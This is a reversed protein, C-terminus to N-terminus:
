ATNIVNIKRFLAVPCGHSVANVQGPQGKADYFSAGLYYTQKGGILAMANWFEPTRGHYAVDRLMRVKKGNRIEWFVQGGFQMNYRQQDISYSGRGEVYIGRDCAGIVDDESLDEEGPMLSVNPMRQFPMNMWDMGYSCGHSREVGTLESIWAAQERTTQYDVFIGNKIIPWEEAKVGEDDWGVTACGGEQTRDGVFHMFDRGMRLQNLVKDPPSMFSTGAYNAEYGYARDLETPHGISEHITLWLHSPHLVLDWVGPEVPKAAIKMAAEEGWRPANGPLDLGTVYEWGRAAPEAVSSRTQFDRGDSSIATINMSPNMRVFKQDILSGESTATLRREKVSHIRSSVFRVGRTQLAAANAEFLLAAKEEIPIREPDVEHPTEWSVDAYIEVPALTVSSPAVRNNAAAISVAERAAAAIADKNVDPTAAFGWTGGVLARIGTGYSESRSAETLKEERAGVGQSWHRSIRADAYDAGASMAADIALLVLDSESADATSSARSSPTTACGSALSTSAVAVAALKMFDRRDLHGFPAEPRGAANAPRLNWPTLDAIRHM